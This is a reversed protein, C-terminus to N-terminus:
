SSSSSAHLEVLCDVVNLVGLGIEGPAQPDEPLPEGGLVVEVLEAV